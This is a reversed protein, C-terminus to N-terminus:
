VTKDRRLVAGWWGVEGYSWLAPTRECISDLHGKCTRTCLLHESLLQHIFITSVTFTIFGIKSLGLVLVRSMVSRM